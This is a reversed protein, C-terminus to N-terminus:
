KRALIKAAESILWKQSQPRRRPLRASAMGWALRQREQPSYDREIAALAAKLITNDMM